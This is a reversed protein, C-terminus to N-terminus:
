DKVFEVIKDVFSDESEIAICNPADNMPVPTYEKGDILYKSYAVNTQKEDLMLVKYKDIKLESIVKNM